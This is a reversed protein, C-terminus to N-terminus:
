TQLLFSSLIFTQKKTATRSTVIRKQTSFENKVANYVTQVDDILLTYGGKDAIFGLETKDKISGGHGLHDHLLVAFGEECLRRSFADYRELHESMGHVIQFLGAAEQVPRYLRCHLDHNKDSSTVSFDKFLEM